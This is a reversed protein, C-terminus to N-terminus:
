FTMNIGFTLDMTQCLFLSIRLTTRPTGSTLNRNIRAKEMGPLAWFLLDDRNASTASVSFIENSAFDRSGGRGPKLPCVNRVGVALRLVAM